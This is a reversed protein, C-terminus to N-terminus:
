GASKKESSKKEDADKPPVFRPNFTVGGAKELLRAVYKALLEEAKQARLQPLVKTKDGEFKERTYLDLQKLQVLAFGGGELPLLREVLQDPKELAFALEAVNETSAVGPLPAADRNFSGSVSSKPRDEATAAPHASASEGVTKKLFEATAAETAAELAEGGRLRALLGEAFARAKESGLAASALRYLEHERVLADLNEPTVKAHLRLLTVGRLTKVPESLAGPKELKEAVAVLEPGGTGYEEGVLCGVRGGLVRSPAQSERRAAKEFASESTLTGKLTEARKTLAEDSEGDKATLLIESVVPCGEKWRARLATQAQTLDAEHEKAFTELDASTPSAFYQEFWSSEVSVSRIQAESRARALALFAEEESVRAQSRIAERVREATHELIQSEKFHNPSRSTAVRVLKKYREFDFVGDKKVPLARLGITSPECGSPGDVCLALGRALQNEGDAPLSVRTRGELLEADVAAESAGIGLKKAEELLVAREALGRAIKEQLRLRQVAKENLGISSVLGYAAFFEKPDICRKGVNAACESEISATGGTRSQLVFALIISVVIGGFFIQGLGSQRLARM